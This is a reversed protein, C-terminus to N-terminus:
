QILALAEKESIEEYMDYTPSEPSFYHLMVGSRVWGKDPVFRYQEEASDARVIMGKRSADNLRYYTTSM